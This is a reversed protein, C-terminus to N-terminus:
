QWAAYEMGFGGGMGSSFLWRNRSITPWRNRYCFRWRNRYFVRWCAPETQHRFGAPNNKLSGAIQRRSLKSEYHLRLVQRIKRM